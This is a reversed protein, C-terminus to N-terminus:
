LSDACGMFCVCIFLVCIPIHLPWFCFPPFEPSFSTITVLEQKPTFVDWLLRHCEENEYGVVLADIIDQGASGPIPTGRLVPRECDSKRNFASIARETITKAKEEPSLDSLPDDFPYSEEIRYLACIVLILFLSSLLYSLVVLLPWKKKLTM